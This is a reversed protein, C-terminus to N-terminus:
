QVPAFPLRCIFSHVAIDLISRRIEKPQRKFVIDNCTDVTLRSRVRFWDLSNEWKAYSERYKKEGLAYDKEAYSLLKQARNSVLGGAARRDVIRKMWEAYPLYIQISCVMEFQAFITPCFKLHKKFNNSTLDLHMLRYPRSKSLGGQLKITKRAQTATIKKFQNEAPIRLAEFSQSVLVSPKRHVIKKILTSKGSASPGAVIILISGDKLM